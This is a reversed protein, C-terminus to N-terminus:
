KKRKKDFFALGLGSLITTIGLGITSGSVGAKPLDDADEKEEPTEPDTPDDTDDEEGPTDPETPDEGPTEPETPDDDPTDPETPEEGPEDPDTPEVEVLSFAGFVRSLSGLTEANVEITFVNDTDTAVAAQSAATDNIVAVTGEPTTLTITYSGVPLDETTTWLNYEDFTGEFVVGDEDEVLIEVDSTRRNNLDRVEVGLPYEQEVLQFAGYVASSTGLTEDNLNITFVNDKDTPIAYQQTTENIVALTDDPTELTITYEGAPLEEDTLWQSYQNFSGEFVVFDENQVYITVNDTRRGDVGRVEVGVQYEREVLQFAGYVASLNGLTEENLDITFVNEADTAVAAQTAVSDNIVAYTGSPTQLTIKYTGEVLEDNTFWQLYDNFSGEFVVGDADQVFIRVDDTRRGNVGRVEIGVPYTAVVEEGFINYRIFTTSKNDVYTLEVTATGNDNIVFDSTTDSQGFKTADTMNYGDTVLTYTGNPVGDVTWTRSNAGYQRSSLPYETGDEAVLTVTYKNTQDGPADDHILARFGGSTVEWIPNLTVDSEPTYTGTYHNIQTVANGNADLLTGDVTYGTLTYGPNTLGLRFRSELKYDMGDSVETSVYEDNITADGANINM